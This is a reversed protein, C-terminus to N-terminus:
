QAGFIKRFFRSFRSPKKKEPQAPPVPAPASASADAPKPEHDKANYVFPGTPADQTSPLIAAAAPPPPPAPALGESQALPFENGAASPPPCGCPEKEHDVVEQISGHEFMVRQGPEVQYSTADFVSTVLLYLAGQAPNGMSNDVCTDGRPGLRVKVESSGPGSILIRFDPTLIVDSNRGTAFSAEVAGRDLAMLLGPTDGTPVGADVALKVTTSACIRLTGRYPLTVHATQGGATISGTTTLFAHGNAVQMPGSVSAAFGTTASDLPVIALPGVIPPRAASPVAPEQPRPSAALLLTAALVIGATRIVISTCRAKFLM